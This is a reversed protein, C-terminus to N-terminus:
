TTLQSLISDAHPPCATCNLESITLTPVSPDPVCHIVWTKFLSIKKASIELMYMFFGWGVLCCSWLWFFFWWIFGVGWFFVLGLGLVGIGFVTKNWKFEKQFSFYCFHPYLLGENGSVVPLFTSWALQFIWVSGSIYFRSFLETRIAPSFHIRLLRVISM